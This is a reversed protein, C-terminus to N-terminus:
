SELDGLHTRGLIIPNDDDGDECDHLTGTPYITYLQNLIDILQNLSQDSQDPEQDLHGQNYEMWARYRTEFVEMQDAGIWCIKALIHAPLEQRIIREFYARFDMNSFRTTYGPLIISVRFSYPDLPACTTCDEEACVPLFNDNAKRPRLLTHEVLFFGEDSFKENLFNVLYNIAEQREEETDFPEIRRAKIDNDNDVINFYFKGNEATILQYNANSKGLEVASALAQEAELEDNFHQSSSLLIKDNVDDLVRFRPESADDSDHEEYIQYEINSLNRNKYNHIGLLRAVRHQVGSTNIQHIPINIENQAYWIKKPIPQEDDTLLNNGSRDKFTQNCYDIAMGRNHSIFAYDKLFLKKDLILDLNARRKDFMSHMLLVYDNFSEAFRATLHDLIKNHQEAYRATLKGEAREESIQALLNDLNDYNPFLSEINLVEASTIVQTFYSRSLTPNCSLLDKVGSLQALYNALIQDFFLLYAQLQKAQITRIRKAEPDAIAPYLGLQSVGYFDPLDQQISTYNSLDRYEGTPMDLDDKALAINKLREQQAEKLQSLKLFVEDKDPQFPLLDKFFNFVSKEVCLSAQHDPRIQITWKEEQDETREDSSCYNLLIKQVTKVGPIKSIIRILDSIHIAEKLKSDELESDKIFGNELLPGDFIEETPIGQDLLDQLTYRPVDPALHQQVAFLIEAYVSEIDADAFLEIDSCVLIKHKPIIEINPDLDECLNRHAHYTAIVAEKIKDYDSEPIADQIEIIVKNIGNLSFAKFAHTALQPPTYAIESTKCDLFYTPHSTSLWANKVGPIDIFLKRYDNETLPANPLINKASIFQQHMAQLNDQPHALIDELDFDTRYGLDTIAYCLLELITIGPDHSNYDTWIKGSLKEIHELGIQKLLDYNLSLQEPAQKSITISEEM